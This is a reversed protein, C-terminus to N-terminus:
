VICKHDLFGWNLLNEFTLKMRSSHVNKKSWAQLMHWPDFGCWLLSGLWQLSLALDKVWQAM